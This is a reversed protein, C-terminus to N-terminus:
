EVSLGGTWVAAGGDESQVVVWLEVDAPDEPGTYVLRLTGDEVSTETDSFGGASAYGYGDTAGSVSFCLEKSEEVGVQIDEGFDAEITPNQRRDEPLQNSIWLSRRALSVGQMPLSELMTFPDAMDEECPEEDELLPCLGAECAMAWISAAATDTEQLLAAAEVPATLSWSLTGSIESTRALRETGQELCVGGFGVCTWAGAHAGSGEPDALYATVAVSEGPSAEPPEAVIAVVRLEDVLTEPNAGM